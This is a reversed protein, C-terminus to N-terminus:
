RCLLHALLRLVFRVLDFFRTAHVLKNEGEATQDYQSIDAVFIVAMANDFSYLTLCRFGSLTGIYGVLPVHTSCALASFLVYWKRVENEQGSVDVLKINVDAVSIDLENLLGKGGLSCRAIDEPTPVYEASCVQCDFM